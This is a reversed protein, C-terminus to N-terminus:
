EGKNDLGLESATELTDLIEENMEGTKFRVLGVDAGWCLALLGLQLPTWRDILIMPTRMDETWLFLLLAGVSLLLELVLGIRFRRVFKRVAELLNAITSAFGAELEPLGKTLLTSQVATLDTEYRELM